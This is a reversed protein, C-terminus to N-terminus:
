KDPNENIEEKDLGLINSVKVHSPVRNGDIHILAQYRDGFMESEVYRIFTGVRVTEVCGMDHSFPNCKRQLILVRDGEKYIKTM